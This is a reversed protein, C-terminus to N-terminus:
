FPIPLAVFHLVLILFGLAVPGFRNSSTRPALFCLSIVALLSVCAFLFIVVDCEATPWIEYTPVFGLSVFDLLYAM